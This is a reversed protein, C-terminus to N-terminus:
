LAKRITDFIFDEFTRQHWSKPRKRNAREGTTTWPQSIVLSPCVYFTVTFIRCFELTTLHVKMSCFWSIKQPAPMLQSAGFGARIIRWLWLSECYVSLFVPSHSLLPSFTSLGVTPDPPSTLPTPFALHHSSEWTTSNVLFWPLSIPFNFDNMPLKARSISLLAGEASRHNSKNLNYHTFTTTLTSTIQNKNTKNKELFRHYQICLCNLKIPECPTRQRNLESIYWFKNPKKERNCLLEKM